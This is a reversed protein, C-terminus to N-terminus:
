TRVGKIDRPCSVKCERSVDLPRTESLAAADSAPREPRRKMLFGGSACEPAEVWRRATEAEKVKDYTKTM